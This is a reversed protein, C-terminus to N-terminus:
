EYPRHSVVLWLASEYETRSVLDLFGVHDAINRTGELIPHLVGTNNKLRPGSEAFNWAAGDRACKLFWLVTMEVFEM